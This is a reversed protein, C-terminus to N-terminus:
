FVKLGGKLLWLITLLLVPDRWPSKMSLALCATPGSSREGPKEGPVGTLSVPLVQFM